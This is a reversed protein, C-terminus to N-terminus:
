EGSSEASQIPFIVDLSLYDGQAGFNVPAQFLEGGYFAATGDTLIYGIAEGATYTGTTTSIFDVHGFAGQGPGPINGEATITLATDTIGSAAVTTFDSVVADPSLAPGASFLRVKPTTLLAAAPRAALCALMANLLAKGWMLLQTVRYM